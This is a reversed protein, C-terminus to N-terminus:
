QIWSGFGSPSGRVDSPMKTKWPVPTADAVGHQDGAVDLLEAGAPWSVSVSSRLKATGFPGSAVIAGARTPGPPRVGGVVTISSSALSTSVAVVLEVRLLVPDVEVLAELAHEHPDRGRAATPGVLPKPSVARHGGAMPPGNVGRPPM